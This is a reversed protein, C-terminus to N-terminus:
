TRIKSSQAERESGPAGPRVVNDRDRFMVSQISIPVAVKSLVSRGRTFNKAMNSYNIFPELHLSLFKARFNLLVLGIKLYKQIVTALTCYILYM